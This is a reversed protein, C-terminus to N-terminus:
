MYTGLFERFRILVEIDNISGDGIRYVDKRAGQEWLPPPAGDRSLSRGEEFHIHIPHSWGNGSNMHWIEWQGQTVAASVRHPDMGFGQGGDTKITWPQSDTGNSRGFDFTHRRASAIDAPTVVPRDIMTKKGDVYDAPNMSLDTGTYNTVRFELFKGVGPDGRYAGSLVEELPVERSVGKGDKHEQLNVFYVKTGVPVQKFDVVIDYREAIGQQPLDKSEANPFAVTHEMVNGDNAIMYFPVRAGTDGRVVAIKIYRSVAGNLIRFRYKRPLVEMYPAYLGNVLLMDGLFGDTDFIDFYLQGAQDTAPNTVVLNV